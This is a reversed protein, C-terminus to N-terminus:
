LKDHASGSCVKLAGMRQPDARLAARFAVPDKASGNENLDYSSNHSAM